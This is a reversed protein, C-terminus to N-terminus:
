PGVLVLTGFNESGATLPLELREGEALPDGSEFMAGDEAHLIAGSAGTSELATEVIVRLLQQVDHTAALAEGFRTIADRLRAREADLEDLRAELQDAMENFASGLRAFEDRGRVPVRESLRGLSIGHAAEALGRLTRVISRGEVYAVLSVLGLSALLGLLLRDRSASNAADILSQPSLVAFRIQDSGALGPAVLARYRVGGVLITKTQGPPLAVSGSVEPSSAVISSQHLLVLADSPALGSRARVADILSSDSPVYAIVTGVLGVKTFVDVQQQTALPPLSGVTFADGAAVVYLDTADRLMLYLETSNRTQLAIQFTRNRALADADAQAADLQEQYTALSARLGAQLRADVRRTESQGAVYTFGWYAAAIPLLSLLAFYVVLKVKFSGM